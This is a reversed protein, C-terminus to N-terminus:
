WSNYDLGFHLGFKDAQLYLRTYDVLESCMDLCASLCSFNVPLIKSANVICCIWGRHSPPLDSAKLSARSQAPPDIGAQPM